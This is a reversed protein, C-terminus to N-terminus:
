TNKESFVVARFTLFEMGPKRWEDPPLGAKLCLQNLTTQKDWGQEEAVQPLFVASRGNKRIIIGDKGVSFEDHTPIKEPSTLVSIEINLTELENISSVPPFRPDRFAANEANRVVNDCLAEFGEGINGICGRLRGDQTHLTVFCSAIEKLRDTLKLTREPENGTL